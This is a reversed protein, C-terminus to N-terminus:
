AVQSKLPLPQLWAHDTAPRHTVSKETPNATNQTVPFETSSPDQVTRSLQSLVLQIQDLTMWQQQASCVEDVPRQLLQELVRTVQDPQCSHLYLFLRDSVRTFFDGARGVQMLEAPDTRQWEPELDMQVLLPQHIYLDIQKLSQQAEHVFEVPELYGRVGPLSSQQWTTNFDTPLLRSYLQGQLSALMGQLRAFSVEAPIVLSAGLQYLRSEESARLHTGLERIVIRLRAGRGLRMQYVLQTLEKLSVAPSFELLFTCGVASSLQDTVDNNHNVVEWGAPLPYGNLVARAVVTRNTDYVPGDSPVLELSDPSRSDILLQQNDAQSIQATRQSILHDGQLWYHIVWSLNRGQYMLNAIGGLTGVGARLLPQQYEVPSMLLFICQREQAWARMAILAHEFEAQMGNLCYRQFREIVILQQHPHAYYDIEGLLREVSASIEELFVQVKGNKVLEKLRQALDGAVLTRHPEQDTIWIPTQGTGSSDVLHNHLLLDHPTDEGYLVLYLQGTSLASFNFPSQNSRTTM